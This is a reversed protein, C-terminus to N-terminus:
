KIKYSGDALKERHVDHCSKCGAFVGKMAEGTAAADKSEAAKVVAQAATRTATNMKVAEADKRAAWFSEVTALAADVAKAGAAAPALDGGPDRLAKNAAQVGAQVDKMAKQFDAETVDAARVAPATLAAVLVAIVTHKKM